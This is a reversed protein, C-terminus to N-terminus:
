NKQLVPRSEIATVLEDVEFPKQMLEVSEVLQKVTNALIDKAFASAFIIRQGPVKKLIAKAVDIGNKKPMMHDLMVIDFPAAGGGAELEALYANLAEEGNLTVTVKHGRDELVFGYLKAINPEDEAILIKLPKRAGM